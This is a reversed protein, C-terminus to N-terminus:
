GAPHSLPAELSTQSAVAISGDDLGSLPIVALGYRWTHDTSTMRSQYCLLVNSGELLVTSHGNEGIERPRLIPGLSRYPGEVGEALAFFVRQREGRAGEPLFCTANLLVRGDPLEILQAGEIGWEYDHHDRSNHHHAIDAHDLIKGLRLWPGNWSPTMSKAVYIDPQPPFGDPMGSYVLYREGAILAPHPDYIGHESSGELAHLATDVHTWHFGDPSTLYEISGGPKKFETQVFMSFQGKEHVVGPAAVGSGTLALVVEEEETWPGHLSPATAHFIRWQETVTSGSSGFLHWREGDFVPCPDKTDRVTRPVLLPFNDNLM